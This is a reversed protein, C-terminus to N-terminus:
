WCPPAAASAGLRGGEIWLYAVLGIVGALAPLWVRRRPAYAAGSYLGVLWPGPNGSLPYAAAGLVAAAEPWRRRRVQVISGLVGAVLIVPRPLTSWPTKVALVALFLCGAVLVSDAARDDTVLARWSGRPMGVM